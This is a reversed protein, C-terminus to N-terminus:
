TLRSAKARRAVALSHLTPIHVLDRTLAFLDDRMNDIRHALRDPLTTM